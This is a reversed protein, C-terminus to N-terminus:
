MNKVSEEIANWLTDSGHASDPHYVPKLSNVAKNIDRKKAGEQVCLVMHAPLSDWLALTAKDRASLIEKDGEVETNNSSLEEYEEQLALTREELKKFEEELALYKSAKVTENEKKEKVKQSNIDFLAKEIEEESFKSIDKRLTEEKKRGAKDQKLQEWLEQIESLEMLNIQEELTIGVVKLAEEKQKILEENYDKLWSSNIEDGDELAKLASDLLEKDQTMKSLINVPIDGAGDIDKFCEYVSMLRFVYARSFGFQEGAWKIHEKSSFKGKKNCFYFRSEVLLRGIDISTKNGTEINKLIKKEIAAKTAKPKEMEPSAVAKDKKDVKTSPKKEKKDKETVEEVKVDGKVKKDKSVEEVKIDKKEKKEKKAM